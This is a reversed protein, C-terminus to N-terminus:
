FEGTSPASLIRLGQLMQRVASVSADHIEHMKKRLEERLGARKEYLIYVRQWLADSDVNEIEMVFDSLGLMAMIGKTKYGHYSIAVAPTGSSLALIVSHFRTGIVLEARGYLMKLQGATFDEELLVIDADVLNLLRALDRIALLDNELPYPGVVQPVIVVPLGLERNVLQITAAISQLYRVYREKAQGAHYPFYWPRVTLAAFRTPLKNSVSSSLEETDISFATDWTLYVRSGAGDQHTPGLIRKVLELSLPERTFIWEAGSLVKRVFIEQLKGIIPGISQAFIVTPKGLRKALILPYANRYLGLLSFINGTSFFIHGGKSIVLDATEFARLTGREERSVLHKSLGRPLFLLLLSRVILWVRYIRRWSKNNITPQVTPFLSGYVSVCGEARVTHRYHYLLTKKEAPFSSVISVRLDLGAEDVVERLLRIMGEVIAADGKNDDSWGNVLLINVTRNM